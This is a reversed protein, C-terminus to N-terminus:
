CAVAKLCPAHHEGLQFLCLSMGGPSAGPFRINQQLGPVKKFLELGSALFESPDQVKDLASDQGFHGTPWYVSVNFMLVCHVGAARSSNTGASHMIEAKFQASFENM